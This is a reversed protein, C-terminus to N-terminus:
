SGHPASQHLASVATRRDVLRPPPWFCSEVAELRLRGTLAALMGHGRGPARLSVCTGRPVAVAHLRSRIRASTLNPLALVRKADLGRDREPLRGALRLVRWM